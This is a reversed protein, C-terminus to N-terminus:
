LFIAQPCNPLAKTIKDGARVGLTKLSKACSEILQVLRRYTTSKGMFDFAIYDPYKEAVSAVMEFMSGQFYELHAPVAGLNKVWPTKVM